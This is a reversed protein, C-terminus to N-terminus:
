QGSIYMCIYLVCVSIIYPSFRLCFTFVSTADDLSVFDVCTSCIMLANKVQCYRDWGGSVCQYKNDPNFRVCTVRQRHGGVQEEDDGGTVQGVDRVHEARAADIM